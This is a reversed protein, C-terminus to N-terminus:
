APRVDTTSRNPSCPASWRNTGGRNTSSRLRWDGTGPPSTAAANLLTTGRLQPFGDVVVRTPEGGTHSDVVDITM